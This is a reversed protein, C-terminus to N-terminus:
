GNRGGETPLQNLFKSNRIATRLISLDITIQIARWLLGVAFAALVLVGVFFVSSTGYAILVFVYIAMLGGVLLMSAREVILYTLLRSWTLSPRRRQVSLSVLGCTSGFAIGVDWVLLYGAPLVSFTPSHNGFLGSIGSLACAVLLLVALPNTGLRIQLTSLNETM